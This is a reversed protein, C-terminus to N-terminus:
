IVGGTFRSLGWTAYGFRAVGRYPLAPSAFVIAAQRSDGREIAKVNEFVQYLQLPGSSDVRVPEYNLAEAHLARLGQADLM